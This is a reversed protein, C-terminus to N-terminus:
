MYKGLNELETVDFTPKIPRTFLFTWIVVLVAVKVPQIVCINGSASMFFSLTWAVNKYHTNSLGYAIVFFSSILCTSITLMWGLYVCWWPLTLTSSKAAGARNPSDMSSSESSYSNTSSPNASVNTNRTTTKKWHFCGFLDDEAPSSRRPSNKLSIRSKSRSIHDSDSSSSTSSSTSSSSSPISKSISYESIAEVRNDVLTTDKLQDGGYQAVFEARRARVLRFISIILGNIPLVIFASQASVILTDVNVFFEAYRLADMSTASIQYFMINALMSSMVIAFGCSLRQVRTFTSHQPCTFISVWTHQDRMGQQSLVRFIYRLPQAKTVKLRRRAIQDEGQPQMWQDCVFNSTMSSRRKCVSIQM